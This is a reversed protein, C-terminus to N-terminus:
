TLLMLVLFGISVALCLRKKKLGAARPILLGGIYSAAIIMLLYPLRKIGSSGIYFGLSCLLLWVWQFRKPMLYLLAAAIPLALIFSFSLISM